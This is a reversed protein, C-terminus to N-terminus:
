TSRVDGCRAAWSHAVRVEGLLENVADVWWGAADTWRREELDEVYAAVYAAHRGALAVADEQTALLEQCM